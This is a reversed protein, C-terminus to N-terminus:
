CGDNHENLYDIGDSEQKEEFSQTYKDQYYSFPILWGNKIEFHETM